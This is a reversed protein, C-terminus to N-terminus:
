AQGAPFPVVTIMSGNGDHVSVLWDSWDAGGRVKRMLQGALSYATAEMDSVSRTPCGAKDLILDRGNTLHYYFRFSM